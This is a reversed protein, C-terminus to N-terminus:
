RGRGFGCIAVARSDRDYDTKAYRVEKNTISDAYDM